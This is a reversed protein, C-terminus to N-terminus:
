PAWCVGSPAWNTCGPYSAREQKVLRHKRRNGHDGSGQRALSWSCPTLHSSASDPDSPLRQPVGTRGLAWGRRDRAQWGPRPGCHPKTHCSARFVGHTQPLGPWGATGATSALSAQSPPRAWGLGGPGPALPEGPFVQAPRAAGFSVQSGPPQTQPPPLRCCCRAM